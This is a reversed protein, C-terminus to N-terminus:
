RPEREARNASQGGRGGTELAGPAVVRQWAGLVQARLEQETGANDLVVDARALKELQPPQADIRVRAEADSLGRLRILRERQQEPPASTVWVQDCDDALDSEILKIAEVVAIPRGDRKAPTYHAHLWERPPPASALQQLRADLMAGVVPHILGELRRLQAPDRFVRAGLGARDIEGDERLIGRGFAAVVAPYAAGSQDLALHVLDDADITVAGLAALMSRVVSKGTAINGTLGIVYVGPWRRM